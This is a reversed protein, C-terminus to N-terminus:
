SHLRNSRSRGLRSGTTIWEDSEEDYYMQKFMAKLWAKETDDYDAENEFQM